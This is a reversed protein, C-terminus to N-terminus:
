KLTNKNRPNGVALPVSIATIEVYIMNIIRFTTIDLCPDSVLSKRLDLFLLISLTLLYKIATFSLSTEM